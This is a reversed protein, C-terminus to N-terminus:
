GALLQRWELPEAMLSFPLELVECIHAVSETGNTEPLESDCIVRDVITHHHKLIAKAARLSDAELVVYGSAIMQLKCVERLMHDSEILLVTPLESTPTEFGQEPNM